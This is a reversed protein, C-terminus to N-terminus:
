KFYIKHTAAQKAAHIFDFENNYFEEIGKETSFTIACLKSGTSRKIFYASIVHDPAGTQFQKSSYETMLRSHLKGTTKLDKITM